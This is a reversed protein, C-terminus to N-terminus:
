DPKKRKANRKQKFVLMRKLYIVAETGHQEEYQRWFEKDQQWRKKALKKLTRQGQPSKRWAACRANMCTMCENMTYTKKAKKCYAKKFQEVPKAQECRFCTRKGDIVPQSRYGARRGTDISMGLRSFRSMLKACFKCDNSYGDRNRARKYFHRYRDLVRDCLGCQKTPHRNEGPM